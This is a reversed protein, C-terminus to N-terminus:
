ENELEQKEILFGTVSINHMTSSGANYRAQMVVSGLRIHTHTLIHTKDNFKNDM